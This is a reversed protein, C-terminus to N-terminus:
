TSSAAASPRRRREPAARRAHRALPGAVDCLGKRERTGPEAEDGGDSPRAGVLREHHDPRSRTTRRRCRSTEGAGASSWPRRSSTTSSRCTRPGSPCTARASWATTTPSYFVPFQDFEPIIELGRNRRATEVHQRFAYGDRMSPPKPLPARLRVDALPIPSSAARSRRPCGARRTRRSSRTPPLARRRPTRSSAWCARATGTRCGPRTAAADPSTEVVLARAGSRDRHGRRARRRPRACRHPVHRAEHFASRDVGGRHGRQADRLAGPCDDLLGRPVQEAPRDHADDRRGARAVSPPQEDAAAVGPLPRQRAPRELPALQQAVRNDPLELLLGPDDLAGHPAQHPHVGAWRSGRNWATVTTTSHSTPSGAFFGTFGSSIVSTPSKRVSSSGASFRGPSSPCARPPPGRRGSRRPTFRARAGRRRQRAGM